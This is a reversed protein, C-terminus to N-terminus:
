GHQESWAQFMLVGWLQYQRNVKGSQHANWEATIAKEDFIGEARLRQPDLLAAAWDKLEARLWHDIPVGFGMKPREILERPVHKYLLERLLWKGKGERITQAHPLTAAFSVLAPDLFPIRTELSVGMAARDVKCLIDDPLYTLQDMGQMWRTFGLQDVSFPPTALLSDLEGKHLLASAPDQWQSVLRRYLQAEDVCDVIRSLKHIKEGANKEGRKLLMDAAGYMGDWARVPVARMSAAMAARLPRPVHRLKNWISTGWFYRNYGAFLEDGADGSLAVTVHQKAIQSVLYTPIQSVDAFPEDYLQPLAPIVRLADAPSVMMETHHTGLHKAVARAHEAENYDPVDFGMTFSHVPTSSQAQMLAVIASSDIGGSLFAGLPVDSIMRKAISHSLLQELEALADADSRQIPQQMIDARADYYTEEHTAGDPTLTLIHGPLLKAIGQYISYPAPIYNHRLYLPLVERNITAKWAPHARLAKLESGFLFAAGQRGYYLPKEGMRDRALTLTREKKDWLAFAFMGDLKQLAAVIGWQEIAALLVETDSTGRWEAQLQPRLEQFNYIEGNFAIVYRGSHSEMPQHGTPTLDIISLRRHSLCIGAEADVWADADDPGRHAIAEGMSIGIAHMEQAGLASSPSFFGAFGCM